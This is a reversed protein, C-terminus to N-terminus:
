ELKVLFDKVLAMIQNRVGRAFDVSQEFPDPVDWFIVKPDNHFYDPINGSPMLVIVKDAKEFMELTFMKRECNSVDIGIEQMVTVINMDKDKLKQGEREATVKTGASSATRRGKASDNFIAEAMQSRAVNGGCIFLVQM